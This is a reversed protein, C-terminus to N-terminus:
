PEPMRDSAERVPRPKQGNGFARVEAQPNKRTKIRRAGCGDRTLAVVGTPGLMFCLRLLRDSVAYTVHLSQFPCMM